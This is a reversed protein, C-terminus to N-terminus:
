LITQEPTLVVVWCNTATLLTWLTKSSKPSVRRMKRSILINLLALFIYFKQLMAIDYAQLVDHSDLVLISEVLNIQAHLVHLVSEFPQDVGLLGEGLLHDLEDEVLEEAADVEHM